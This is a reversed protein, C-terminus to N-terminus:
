SAVANLSLGPFVLGGNARFSQTRRELDRRIDGGEEDSLQAVVMSATGATASMLRWYGEYDPFTWEVEMEEVDPPGFGAGEVLAAIREPSAMSFIGPSGPDPRPLLGREVLVQGLLAWPNREPPGWVSFVVRGAPRLVRRTERFAAAADAMLMYGFRCLVGDVSESELNMREADLVRYEANTVGLEAGRRRAVDVMAPSFDTSLLRGRDGLRAAALFGTDGAGAALELIVDGAQPALREVMWDAVPRSVQWLYEREREWGPAVSEWAAYSRSRYEDGAM